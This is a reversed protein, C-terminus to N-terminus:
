LLVMVAVAALVLLLAGGALALRAWLKPVFRDREVEV